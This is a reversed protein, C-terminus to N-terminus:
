RATIYTVGLCMEESTSDGWAVDVPDRRTGDRLPQNEASNDWHCELYLQDGVGFEIENEFEFQGQWQFDWDEIELMCTESSGHDITLRGSSGLDHMHLAVNHLSVSDGTEIGLTDGYFSTLYRHPDWYTSHMVDSEGAPITMPTTGTVWEFETYPMTIAPRDVSDALRLRISSQDPTPLSSTTNYHVQLIIVSDPAIEIGTGEPTYNAAGGPAWAGFWDATNTGPGGYCAYGAGPDAADLAEYTALDAGAAYYGIVHHVIPRVDPLVEFGTVFVPEPETWPILFCRQDDPEIQPTYPELLGLELDYEFEARVPAEIAEELDGEALGADLWDLLADEQAPELSRNGTYDQCDDSAPWPPMTGSRVARDVAARAAYVQEYTDLPFPAIDGEIHCSVCKADIIPKIDSYYTSEDTVCSSLSAILFVPILPMTSRL